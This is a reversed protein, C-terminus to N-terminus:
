GWAHGAEELLGALSYAHVVLRPAPCDSLLPASVLPRVSLPHTRWAVGACLLLCALLTAHVASLHRYAPLSGPKAMGPFASQQHKAGSAAHVTRAARRSVEEFDEPKLEPEKTCNRNDSGADVMVAKPCAALAEERQPAQSDHLFCVVKVCSQPACGRNGRACWSCPQHQLTVHLPFRM